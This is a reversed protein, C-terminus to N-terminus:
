PRNYSLKVMIIIIIIIIIVTTENNAKREVPQDRGATAKFLRRVDKTSFLLNHSHRITM